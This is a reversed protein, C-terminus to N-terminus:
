KGSEKDDLKGHQENLKVSLLYVQEYDTAQKIDAETELNTRQSVSTQNTHKITAAYQREGINMPMNSGIGGSSVSTYDDSPSDIINETTGYGNDRVVSGIWKEKGQNIQQRLFVVRLQDSPKVRELGSEMNIVEDVKEGNEYHEVTVQLGKAKQNHLNVDYAFATYNSLDMLQKEFNTLDAKAITADGKKDPDTEPASEDTDTCAALIFVLLFAMVTLSRLRM